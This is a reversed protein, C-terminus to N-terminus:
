EISLSELQQQLWKERAQETEKKRRFSEEEQEYVCARTRVQGLEQELQSRNRIEVGEGQRVGKTEETEGGIEATKGQRGEEVEETAKKKGDKVSESIDAGRFPQNSAWGSALVASSVSTPPECTPLTTPYGTVAASSAAM